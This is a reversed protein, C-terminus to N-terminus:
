SLRLPPLQGGGQAAVGLLIPHDEHVAPIRGEDACGIINGILFYNGADLRNGTVVFPSHGPSLFLRETEL